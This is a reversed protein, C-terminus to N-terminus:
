RGYDEESLNGVYTPDVTSYGSENIPFIKISFSAASAYARCRRAQGMMQEYVQSRSFSAGDASFDFGGVYAAAKEEWIDGAAAYVDWNGTWDDEDPTNNEADRLPFRELYETIIADTYTADTPEAALRRVRAIDSSSPVPSDAM